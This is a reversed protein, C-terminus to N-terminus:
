SMFWLSLWHCTAASVVHVHWIVHSVRRHRRRYWFTGMTYIIGGAMLFMFSFRPIRRWLRYLGAAIAWGMLIYVTLEVRRMTTWNVSYLVVGTVALAWEVGFYTWGWVGGLGLLSFPTYTGAILLYVASHDLIQFVRKAGEHQIAHYLTSALFMLILTVSFIVYCAVVAPGGIDGNGAAAVTGGLYGKSRLVLLVLGAIALLIGLGHLISNAIEEGPTQFPLPTPVLNQPAKSDRM